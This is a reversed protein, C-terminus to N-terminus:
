TARAVTQRCSRRIRSPRFMIDKHFGESGIEFLVSASSRGVWESAERSARSKYDSRYGMLNVACEQQLKSDGVHIVETADCLVNVQGAVKVYGGLVVDTCWGHWPLPAHRLLQQLHAPRCYCCVSEVFPVCRLRNTSQRRMFEWCTGEPNIAPSFAGVQELDEGLITELMTDTVAVVDVNWFGVFDYELLEAKRLFWECCGGWGLNRRGLDIIGNVSAVLEASSSNDLVVVDHAVTQQRLQRYLQVAM